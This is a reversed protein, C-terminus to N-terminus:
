RRLLVDYFVWLIAGLLLGGTVRVQIAGRGTGYKKETLSGKGPIWSPLHFWAQPSILMFLANVAILLVTLVLGLWGLFHLM